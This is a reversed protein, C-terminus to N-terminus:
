NGNTEERYKIHPIQTSPISIDAAKSFELVAEIPTGAGARTRCADKDKVARHFRVFGELVIMKQEQRYQNVKHTLKVCAPTIM